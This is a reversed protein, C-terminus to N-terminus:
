KEAFEYNNQSYYISGLNNLAKATKETQNKAEYIRLATFTNNIAEPYNAMKKNVVGNLLSVDAIGQLNDIKKYLNIAEYYTQSAELYNFYTSYINGLTTLSIAKWNDNNHNNAFTLAKQAFMSANASDNEKFEESKTILQTFVISDNESYAAKSILFSLIFSIFLSINIIDKM